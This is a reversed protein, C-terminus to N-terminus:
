TDSRDLDIAELHEVLRPLDDTMTDWVRDMDIEFYGHILRNRMGVIDLWPIEPNRNRTAQSLGSAAEGVVEICKVLALAFMRDRELDVRSRGEAFSLAERASDLMHRIRNLDDRSM